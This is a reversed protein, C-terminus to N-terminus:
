ETRVRYFQIANSNTDRATINEGTAFIPGSWPAWAAADLLDTREISYRFGPLSRFTVTTVGGERAFNSVYPRTVPAMRGSKWIQGGLQDIVYFCGDVFVMDRIVLGDANTNNAFTRLTWDIGNTSTAMATQGRPSGEGALVFTGNAYGATYFTILPSAPTSVETWDVGNSSRHTRHPANSLTAVFEGDGFAVSQVILSNLPLWDRGNTSYLSIEPGTAVYVGNGYAINRPTTVFTLPFREWQMGDSSTLAVCYYNTPTEHNRFGFAVFQGGGYTVAWYEENTHAFRPTWQLGNSSTLIIGGTANLGAAVFQGAGEAVALLGGYALGSDVKFWNSGNTSIVINTSFGAAVFTGDKYAMGRLTQAPSAVAQWEDLPDAAFLHVCFVLFLIRWLLRWGEKMGFDNTARRLLKEL